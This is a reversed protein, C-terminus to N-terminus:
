SANCQFYIGQKRGVIDKTSIFFGWNTSSNNQQLLYFIVDFLLIHLYGYKLPVLKTQVTFGLAM